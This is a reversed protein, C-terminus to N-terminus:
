GRIYENGEPYPHIDFGIYFADQKKACHFNINMRDAIIDFVNNNDFQM